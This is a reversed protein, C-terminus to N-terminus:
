EQPEGHKPKFYRRVLVGSSWSEASMFMDIARHMDCSNIKISVAFSAYLHEYRPKLKTCQIDHVELDNKVEEVCSRLEAAHTHSNLRSIFIDVTRFTKVASLHKNSTSVGITPNRKPKPKVTSVRTSEAIGSTQLENALAAYSTSNGANVDSNAVPPFEDHRVERMSKLQSRLENMESLQVSVQERLAYVDDELNKMSRLENRLSRLELLVASMDCHSM